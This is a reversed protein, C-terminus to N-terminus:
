ITRDFIFYWYVPLWLSIDRVLLTQYSSGIIRRGYIRILTSILELGTKRCSIIFADRNDKAGDSYPIICIAALRTEM